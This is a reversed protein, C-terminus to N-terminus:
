RPYLDRGVSKSLTALAINLKAVNEAYEARMTSNARFADIFDKVEGVGMDFTQAEARLWNGTSKLAAGSQEVNARATTVALYAKEVDLEAGAEALPVRAALTAEESRAVRTRDRAQFFNLNWTLGLLVTPRFFNTPNNVFPNNSDFRDTARNLKVQGAVFFQPYFDSASSQVLSARAKVGEGLQALDPRNRLALAVYVDLSDLNVPLPALTTDLPAVVVVAPDVGLSGQLASRAVRTKEVAERFRKEVEYQFVDLKFLDNQGVEDSGADLKKQITNRAKGTETRADEVIRRLEESLVLGWYLTRVQLRVEDRSADLGAEGAQVGHAAARRPGATKGFTFLPQLLNVELETFLRLDSFGTSTDPSFLVGTPSFEGRARPLFGVVQRFNFTPLTGAHAAQALRARALALSARPEALVPSRALARTEAEALTLRLTDAGTQAVTPTVRGLSALAIAVVIRFKM